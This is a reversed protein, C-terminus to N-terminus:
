RNNLLFWSQPWISAFTLCTRCGELFPRNLSPAGADEGGDARSATMVADRRMPKHPSSAWQDRYWATSM